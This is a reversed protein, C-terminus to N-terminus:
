NSADRYQCRLELRGGQLPNEQGESADGRRYDENTIRISDIVVTGLSTTSVTGAFGDLLQRLQGTIAHADPVTQAWANLDLRVSAVNAPGDNNGRRSTSIRQISLRPADPLRGRPWPDSAPHIRDGLTKALDNDGQILKVLAAEIM